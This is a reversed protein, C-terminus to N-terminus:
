SERYAHDGKGPLILAQDFFFYHWSVAVQALHRIRAALWECAAPPLLVSVDFTEGRKAAGSTVASVDTSPISTRPAAPM